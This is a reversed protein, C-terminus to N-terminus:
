SLTAPPHVEQPTTVAKQIKLKSSYHTELFSQALLLYFVCPPFLSFFLRFAKANLAVHFVNEM